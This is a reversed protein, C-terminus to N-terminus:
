RCTSVTVLRSRLQGAAELIPYAVLTLHSNIRKLDRLIDLQLASLKPDYTVEDRLKNLHKIVLEQEHRSVKHKKALLQRAMPTDGSTFVNISLQFVVLVRYYLSDIDDRDQQSLKARPIVKKKSINHILDVAIIDGIHELSTAFNIIHICRKSEPETMSERALSTLYLKIDDHFRNVVKDMERTKKTLEVDNTKLATFASRLMDEVVEGMRIAEREANVLAVRPTEFAGTDLFRPKVAEPEEQDEPLLRETLRAMTNILPFFLIALGINFFMHFNAIQHADSIALPELQLTILETFPLVILVGCIRFILNGLPPQRTVRNAGLTAIFPPLAGGFNAGLIFAFAVSIDMINSSAMTIILLVTALSSHALWALIMAFLVALILDESLAAFIERIIEAERMPLSAALILKLALLMIGIGLVLQGIDRKRGGNSALVLITGFAILIPSLASLDFTLIQAVLTTGVDAGLIIALASATTVIGKGSFSAALLATASSSQLLMTVGLGTCFAKYHNSLSKGLIHRIENGWGDTVSIRVM